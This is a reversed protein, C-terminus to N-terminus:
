GPSFWHQGASLLILTIM